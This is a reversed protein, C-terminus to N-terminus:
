RTLAIRGPDVARPQGPKRLTTVGNPSRTARQPIGDFALGPSYGVQHWAGRTHLFLANSPHAVMCDGRSTDVDAEGVGVDRLPPGRYRLVLVREALSPEGPTPAPGSPGALAATNLIARQRANGARNWLAVCGQLSAAPRARPVRTKGSDGTTESDLVSVLVAAV